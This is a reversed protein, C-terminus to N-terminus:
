FGMIIRLIIPVSTSVFFQETGGIIYDLIGLHSFCPALYNLQTSPYLIGKQYYTFKQCSQQSQKRKLWMYVWHCAKQRLKPPLGRSLLDPALLPRVRTFFRSSKPDKSKMNYGHHTHTVVTYM